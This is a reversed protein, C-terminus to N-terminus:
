LRTGDPGWFPQLCDFRSRTVQFPLPKGLAKTFVQLVGEVAAVYALTKGDPSWAPSGQYGPDTAFPTFRYREFDFGSSDPRAVAAAAVLLCALAAAALLPWIWRRRGALPVAMEASSGLESFRDRLTRLERALDSTSEYRQRPDKALCREIVWRLPAPVRPNLKALPEPEDELIAALTQAATEAQFARRGTVMEYLTSGLSFQDTRYDVAAGRAQEPSMYPVTGQITLPQTLTADHIPTNQQAGVLALGFDLIKVRGERTVMVNEPKFDRHVIGAQHAAALGESMQVSLDLVERVNLPARVLLGRLSMGDVLESVIFPVDDQVGVDYVTVINPHNLASAAQAEETLRRQRSPDTGAHALVKIAVDRNLRPDRARYVDGMGGSGVKGLVQFPGYQGSGEFM